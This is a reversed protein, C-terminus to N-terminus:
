FKRLNDLLVEETIEECKEAHKTELAVLFLQIIKYFTKYFARVKHKVDKKYTVRFVEQNKIYGFYLYEDAAEL